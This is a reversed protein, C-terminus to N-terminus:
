RRKIVLVGIHGGFGMSLMMAITIDKKRMKNPTYDLDCEPDPTKYNITPPIFGHEMAILTAAFEVASSAGLLHGTMSKVSSIPIRKAYEGLASKINETEYKDGARTSTGHASIYDIDKGSIGLDKMISTIGRALNMEGSNLATVHYADSLWRYGLLEGYVHAGRKIASEESEMVVVSAGEGVVFGNRNKDFPCMGSGSLVGMQAYGSLILPTISADSSGAIVIDLRGEKILNYGYIISYSGTACASVTNIAGGKLKFRRAIHSSAGSPVLNEIFHPPITKYGDKAFNRFAKEFTEMGGKSSSVVAGIRNLDLSDLDIGADKIAECSARSAFQIYRDLIGDEGQSAIFGQVEGALKASCPFGATNFRSIPGIGSVGGRLGKYFDEKGIGIPSIIGLGTIVVTSERDLRM